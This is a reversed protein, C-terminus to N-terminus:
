QDMRGNMRGGVGGCDYLRAAAAAKARCQRLGRVALTQVTYVSHTGPVRHVFLRATLTQVTHLGRPCLMYVECHSAAANLLTSRSRHNFRAPTFTRSRVLFTGKFKSPLVGAMARLGGEGPLLTIALNAAGVKLDEAYLSSWVVGDGDVVPSAGRTLYNEKEGCAHQVFLHTNQCCCFFATRPTGM